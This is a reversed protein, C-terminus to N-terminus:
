ANDQGGKVMSRVGAGGTKARLLTKEVFDQTTLDCSVDLGLARMKALTKSTFPVDLGAQLAVNTDEFLNKPTDTAM